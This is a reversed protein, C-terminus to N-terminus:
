VKNCFGLVFIFIESEKKNLFIEAEFDQKVMAVAILYVHINVNLCAIIINMSVAWQLHSSRFTRSARLRTVKSSSRSVCM